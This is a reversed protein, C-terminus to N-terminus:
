GGDAYRILRIDRTDLHVAYARYEATVDGAVLLVWDGVVLHPVLEPAPENGFDYLDTLGPFRLATLTFGRSTGDLGVIRIEGPRHFAGTMILRGAPADLIMRAGDYEAQDTLVSWQGTAPDVQYVYGVGGLTMAYVVGTKPDRVADTPFLVAPVTGPVPLMRTTGDDEQITLGMRTLAVAPPPLAAPVWTRFAAPMDEVPDLRDALYDPRLITDDSLADIVIPDSPAQYMGRFGALRDSGTRATVDRVLHRFAQGRTDLTVPLGETDAGGLPVGALYVDSRTPATGGLIVEELVTDEGWTVLWKVPGRDLLVLVVSAGARDVHVQAQHVAMLDGAPRRGQAISVVHVEREARVPVPLAVVIMLLCALLM